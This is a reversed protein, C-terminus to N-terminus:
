KKVILTLESESKGLNDKIVVCIKYTGIEKAQILFAPTTSYQDINFTNRTSSFGYEYKERKQHIKPIHAFSTPSELVEIEKPFYIICLPEQSAKDGINHVTFRIATPTKVKISNTRHETEYFFVDMKPRPIELAAKEIKFLTKVLFLFGCIILITSSVLFIEPLYVELIGLGCLLLSIFFFVNPLIVARKLSLWNLDEQLSKQQRKYDEIENQIADVGQMSELNSTSTLKKITAKLENARAKKKSIFLATQRGLYSISIAYVAVTLSALGINAYALFLLIQFISENMSNDKSM